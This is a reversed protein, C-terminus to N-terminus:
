KRAPAAFLIFMDYSAGPEAGDGYTVSINQFVIRLRSGNGKADLTLKQADLAEKSQGNLGSISSAFDYLGTSVVQKDGADLVSVRVEQPSVRKVQLKYKVGRAKFDYAVPEEQSDQGWYSDARLLVDYGQIDLPKGMDLNASFYKGEGQAQPYAPEFGFIKEMDANDKFEKPMWPVEELYGRRELYNLISTTEIRLTMDADSKPKIKGDALVGATELMNELRTIQSNRSVTFADAPPIISFIAFGAALLAIIGNRKVPRFSLAIGIAISFVGFLAVYYRSETFGYAKLRIYVSILQMVVVPILVKPFLRQYLVAFRNELCSALVYIILGASSYGLIMPGLQGIPWVRTVAIKVFYALLVLTYAGVLPVAIYSVLIELFRPYYCVERAYSQDSPDESNFRPLLSLYYVTAFFIWVIAMMYGYIDNDVSILLIDVAGIIAALGAALVGAYLVSIAASKFHVLAVNNFDAKDRFSPLWIFACFLSFVTVFTRAGVEFDIAPAPSIIFYYGLALLASVSYVAPRVREMSPFRECVFQATVGLFAGVVFTFMLKQNLLDPDKDLSIIYCALLTACFLCFVSLPFRLVADSLRLLIEAVAERLRKM